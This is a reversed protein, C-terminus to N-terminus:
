AQSHLHEVQLFQFMCAVRAAPQSTYLGESFFHVTTSVDQVLSAGEFHSENIDPACLVNYMMQCSEHVGEVYKGAFGIRSGGSRSLSPCSLPLHDYKHMVSLNRALSKKRCIQLMGHFHNIKQGKQLQMLKEPGVSM